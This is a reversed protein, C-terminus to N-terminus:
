MSQVYHVSLTEGTLDQIENEFMISYGLAIVLIYVDRTINVQNQSCYNAVLTPIVMNPASVEFIPPVSSTLEAFCPGIAHVGIGINFQTNTRAQYEKVRRILEMGFKISEIAQEMLPLSNESLGSLVFFQQISKGRFTLKKSRALTEQVIRQLEKFPWPTTLDKMETFCVYTAIMKQVMMPAFRENELVAKVAIEPVLQADDYYIVYEYDQPEPQKVKKFKKEMREIMSKFSKKISEIGEHARNVALAIVSKNEATVQTINEKTYVPIEPREAPKAAEEAFALGAFAFIAFM